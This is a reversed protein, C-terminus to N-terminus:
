AFGRLALARGTNQTVQPVTSFWETEDGQTLWLSMPVRSFDHGTVFRAESLTNGRGTFDHGLFFYFHLNFLFFSL